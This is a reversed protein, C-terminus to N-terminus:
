ERPLSPFLAEVINASLCFAYMRTSRAVYRMWLLVDLRDGQYLLVLQKEVVDRRDLDIRRFERLDVLAGRLREDVPEAFVLSLRDDPVELHFFVFLGEKKRVGVFPPCGMLLLARGFRVPHTFVAGRPQLVADGSADQDSVYRLDGTAPRAEMPEGRPRECAAHFAAQLERSGRRLIRASGRRANVKEVIKNREERFNAQRSM